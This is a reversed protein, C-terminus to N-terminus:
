TRRAVWAGGIDGYGTLGSPAQKSPVFVPVRPRARNIRQAIQYDPIFPQAEPSPYRPQGGDMGVLMRAMYETRNEIEHTVELIQWWGDAGDSHGDIYVPRYPALYPSGLGTLRGRSIWRRSSLRADSHSRAETQDYAVCHDQFRELIAQDRQSAILGPPQTATSKTIEGSSPNVAWTTVEAHLGYDDDSLDGFDPEFQYLTQDSKTNALEMGVQGTSFVQARPAHQDFFHKHPTLIVKTGETTLAYGTLGAIRRLVQWYTQGHQLITESLPHDEVMPELGAKAIIERATDTIKRNPWTDQSAQKLIMSPSVCTIETMGTINGTRRPSTSHVYGVWTHKDGTGTTGWEMIIPAGTRLIRRPDPLVVEYRLVLVDHGLAKQSLTVVRPTRFDDPVASGPFEVTVEVPRTTRPSYPDITM